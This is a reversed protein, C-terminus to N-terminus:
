ITDWGARSWPVHVGEIFPTCLRCSRAFMRRWWMGEKPMKAIVVGTCGVPDGGAQGQVAPFPFMAIDHGALM